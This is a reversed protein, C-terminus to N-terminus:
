DEDEEPDYDVGTEARQEDSIPAPAGTLPDRGGGAKPFAIVDRISDAGALISVTRDWGLALGAHPPAGYKFAELLFGFKDAAEEPTIGLRAMYSRHIDMEGDLIAHTSNAFRKMFEMDKAKAVGIAFVKTYDLLYLYDQIMYYKFKEKDLTGDAIGQVFPHQHYEAWISETDKLLRETVTM